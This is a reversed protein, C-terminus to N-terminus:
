SYLAASQARVVLMPTTAIHLVKDTISGLAWRRLGSAGHTAMVIVDADLQDAQDAITSAVLGRAVVPTVTIHEERLRVDVGGLEHRLQEVLTQPVREFTERGGLEGLVYPSTVTLPLLEAHTHAALEAALPLAQRALQSGDLPVLIRRINWHEAPTRMSSQVILIPTHASHMVKDAVSGLAWRKLGSYGHTALAILMANEREAVHLIWEAALGICV